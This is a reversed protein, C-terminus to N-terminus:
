LPQSVQEEHVTTWGPFRRDLVARAKGLDGAIGVEIRGGAAFRTSSVTFGEGTTRNVWYRVLLERPTHAGGDDARYAVPVTRGPFRADLVVRAKEVDGCVTVEFLGPKRQGVGCVTFGEGAVSMIQGETDGPSPTPLALPSGEGVAGCGALLVAVLAVVATRATTRTM